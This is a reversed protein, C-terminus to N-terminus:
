SEQSFKEGCLDCTAHFEKKGVRASQGCPCVWKRLNSKGKPKDKPPPPVLVGGALGYDPLSDFTIGHRQLMYVFRGTVGMHCGRNNIVIGFELMKLQFEKNHFWSKSPQGYMYQWSHAMEHILTALVDWLPRNLHARNININEKLGFANRGIVYHGLNTIKTREFSIAPVPVPEDRFFAINFLDIWWALECALDNLLWDSADQQNQLLALNVSEGLYRM